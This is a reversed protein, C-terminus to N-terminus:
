RTAEYGDCWILPVCVLINTTISMYIFMNCQLLFFTMQIACLTHYMIIVVFSQM